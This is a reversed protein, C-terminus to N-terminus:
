RKGSGSHVARDPDFTMPCGEPPPVLKRFMEAVSLPRSLTLNNVM